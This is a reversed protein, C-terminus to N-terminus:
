GVLEDTTRVASSWCIRRPTWLFIWAKSFSIRL